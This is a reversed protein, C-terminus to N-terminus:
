SASAQGRGTRCRPDNADTGPLKLKGWLGLDVPNGAARFYSATSGAYRDCIVVPGLDGKEAKDGLLKVWSLYYFMAADSFPDADFAVRGEYAEAPPTRAYTAGLVRALNQALTTKGSGNLGEVAVIRSGEPAVGPARMACPMLETMGPRGVPGTAM